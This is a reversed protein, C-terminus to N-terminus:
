STFYKLQVFLGKTSRVRESLRGVGEWFRILLYVLSFLLFYIPLICGHSWSKQRPVTYIFFHNNKRLQYWYDRSMQM